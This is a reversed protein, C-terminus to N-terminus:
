CAVDLVRPRKEGVALFVEQQQQLAAYDIPPANQIAVRRKLKIKEYLDPDVKELQRDYYKPVPLEHGEHIIRDNAYINDKFEGFYTYGIGNRRSMTLFEPVRGDRTYDFTTSKKMVYQAVYGASASTATGIIVRGYSWLKTATVSTYVPLKSNTKLYRVLDSFAFGFIIMHYHPRRTRRTGYEGSLIYSIKINQQSLQFRLRKMFCQPHSMCLNGGDPLHDNDYTLTLFCSDQHYRLEHTCRIMWERARRMRCGTCKSCPLTFVEFGPKSSFVSRIYDLTYQLEFSSAFPTFVNVIGKKIFRGQCAFVQVKTYSRERSTFETEFGHISRKRFPAGDLRRIAPMPFFCPM